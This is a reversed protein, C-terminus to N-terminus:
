DTPRRGDVRRQLEPKLNVAVVTRVVITPVDALVDSVGKTVDLDVSGIQDVRDVVLRDASRSPLRVPRAGDGVM